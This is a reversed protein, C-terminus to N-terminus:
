QQLFLVQKSGPGDLRRLANKLRSGALKHAVPAGLEGFKKLPDGAFQMRQRKYVDLHTYSVAILAGTKLAAVRRVYHPDGETGEAFMDLVQGGCVGAPGIAGAFIRMARLVNQAPINKLQAMPFELSQALRDRICM